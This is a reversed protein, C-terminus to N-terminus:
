LAAIEALCGNWELVIINLREELKELMSPLIMQDFTQCVLILRMEPEKLHDLLLQILPKAQTVSKEYLLVPLNKRNVTLSPHSEIPEFGAGDAVVDGSKGEDEAMAVCFSHFLSRLRGM